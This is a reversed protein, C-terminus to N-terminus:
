QAPDESNATPTEPPHYGRVNDTLRARNDHIWADFREGSMRQPPQRLVAPTESWAHGSDADFRLVETDLQWREQPAYLRADGTLTLPNGGAGLLGNRAEAYWTRGANDFLRAEPMELRTVDDHPTHVLRPTELRQHALGAADFRTLRAGELYYDPEGAADRPVEGPERIDRQDILVLVGGLLLLMLALWLRYGPRPLRWKM